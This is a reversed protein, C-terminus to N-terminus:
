LTPQCVQANSTAPHVYLESPRCQVACLCPPDASSTAPHVYLESPRCQVATCVSVSSRCQLDCSTCLVRLTQVASCMPVSSRCQLDRIYMSCPPNWCCPTSSARTVDRRRKTQQAVGDGNSALETGGPSAPVANFYRRLTNSPRSSSAQSVPTNAEM